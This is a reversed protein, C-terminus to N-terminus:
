ASLSTLMDMRKFLVSYYGPVLEISYSNSATGSAIVDGVKTNLGSRVEYKVNEVSSGTLANTFSGSVTGLGDLHDRDVMLTAECVVRQGSVVDVDVSAKKYGTAKM